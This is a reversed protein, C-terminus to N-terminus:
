AKSDILEGILNAETEIVELNSEYMWPITLLDVMEEELNVNSSERMEMSGFDVPLLMGPEDSKSITVKVGAPCAEQMEARSKKFGDTNVNVTNNATVDLKKEFTRLGTLAINMANSM